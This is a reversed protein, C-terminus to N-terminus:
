CSDVVPICTIMPHGSRYCSIYLLSEQPCDEAERCSSQCGLLVPRIDAAPVEAPMGAALRVAESSHGLAAALGVAPESLPDEQLHGGM